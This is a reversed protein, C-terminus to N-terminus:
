KVQQWDDQSSNTDVRQNKEPQDTAPSEFTRIDESHTPGSPNNGASNADKGFDPAGIKPMSSAAGAGQATVGGYEGMTQAAATGMRDFGVLALALATVFLTSFISSTVVTVVRM